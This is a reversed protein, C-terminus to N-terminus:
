LDVVFKVIEHESRESERKGHYLGKLGTTGFILEAKDWFNRDGKFLTGILFALSNKKKSMNWELTAAPQNGNGGGFYYLFDDKSPNLLYRKEVLFDFLKTVEESTFGEFYPAVKEKSSNDSFSPNTSQPNRVKEIYALALEIQRRRVEHYKRTFYERPQQLRDYEVDFWHSQAYGELSKKFRNEYILLQEIFNPNELCCTFVSSEFAKRKRFMKSTFSSYRIKGNCLSDVVSKGKDYTYIVNIFEFFGKTDM